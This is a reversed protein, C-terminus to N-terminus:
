FRQQIKNKIRKQLEQKNFSIQIGLYKVEDLLNIGEINKVGKKIWRNKIKKEV